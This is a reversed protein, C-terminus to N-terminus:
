PMLAQIEPRKTHQINTIVVNNPMYTHSNKTLWILIISYNYAVFNHVSQIIILIYITIKITTTSHILHQTTNQCVLKSRNSLKSMLIPDTELNLMLMAHSRNCRKAYINSGTGYKSMTITHTNIRHSSWKIQVMSMVYSYIKLITFNCTTWLHHSISNCEM